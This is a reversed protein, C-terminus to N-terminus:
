TTSCPENAARFRVPGAGATRAALVRKLLDAVVDLRARRSAKVLVLDGPRVEALLADAAEAVEGFAQVALLGAAQAGAQLEAAHEGVAYLCDVGLRSAARGVEVHAVAAHPGLEAMDGLVAIRRGDCNLDRLTALAALMSDANANYSDDLVRVGGATALQLRRKPAPCDRLGAEVELRTLGLEAGLALALLANEVQHRGLLRLRYDGGFEATPARVAFDTGEDGVSASLAVWDNEPAWGVRTVRARARRRVREAGPSDGTLILAGDAPLADALTGEEQIVGDLNGFFELHERGLRTLVGHTPEAIRLLAALEGPHNTGVEIVAAQHRADLELLTLPVGIDNNFSAESAVTAFRRRLVAAVLEKTTTKGNSGAVAIVPISFRRRHAAALRGLAARADRVVIQPCDLNPDLSGDEGLVAAAGAAVATAAFRHGDFNPGRLCVFLDGPRIARSDTCVRQIPQTPALGRLEGSADAAFTPLPRPDM